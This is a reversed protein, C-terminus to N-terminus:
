YFSQSLCKWIHFTEHKKGSDWFTTATYVIALFKYKVAILKYKFEATDLASHDSNIATKKLESEHETIAPILLFIDLSISTALYSALSGLYFGSPFYTFNGM